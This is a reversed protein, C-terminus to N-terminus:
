PVAPDPWLSQSKPSGQLPGDSIASGRRLAPWRARRAGSSRWVRALRYRAVLRHRPLQDPRSRGGLATQRSGAIRGSSRLLRAVCLMGIGGDDACRRHGKTFAAISHVALPRGLAVPSGCDHMGPFGRVAVAAGHPQRLPMVREPGGCGRGATHPRSRHPPPKGQPRSSREGKRQGCAPPTGSLRRRGRVWEGGCPALHVSGACTSRAVARRCTTRHHLQPAASGGRGDRPM